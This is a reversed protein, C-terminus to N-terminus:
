LEPARIIRTLEEFLRHHRTYDKVASNWVSFDYEFYLTLLRFEDFYGPNFRITLTDNSAQTTTFKNVRGRIVCPEGISFVTDGYKIYYLGRPDDDHYQLVLNQSTSNNQFKPREYPETLRFYNAIFKNLLIM